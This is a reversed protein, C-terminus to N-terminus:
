RARELEIGRRKADAYLEQKQFHTATPSSTDFNDPIDIPAGDGARWFDMKCAFCNDPQGESHVQCAM